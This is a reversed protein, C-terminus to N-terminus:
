NYIIGLLSSLLPVLIAILTGLDPLKSKFGLLTEVERRHDHLAKLEPTPLSLKPMPAVSNLVDDATRMMRLHTPAYVLALFISHFGAHFIIYVQPLTCADKRAYNLAVTGLIALGILASAIILFARAAFRLRIFDAIEKTSDTIDVFRKEIVAHTLWISLIPLAGALFGLYRLNHLGGITAELGPYSCWDDIPLNLFHISFLGMMFIFALTGIIFNSIRRLKKGWLLNSCFIFNVDRLLNKSLTLDSEWKARGPLGLYLHWSIAASVFWFGCQACAVAVWFLSKAEMEALSINYRSYIESTLYWLALSSGLTFLAIPASFDITINRDSRM